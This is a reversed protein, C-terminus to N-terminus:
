FNQEENQELTQDTEDAELKEEHKAPEQTATERKARKEHKAQEQKPRKEKQHQQKKGATTSEKNTTANNNREQRQQSKPQLPTNEHIKSAFRQYSSDTSLDRRPSRKSNCRSLTHKNKTKTNYPRPEIGRHLQCAPAGGYKPRGPTHIPNTPLIPLCQM